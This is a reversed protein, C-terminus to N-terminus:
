NGLWGGGDGSGGKPGTLWHTLQNFARKARAKRAKEEPNEKPVDFPQDPLVADRPKHWFERAPLASEAPLDPPTSAESQAEKPSQVTEPYLKPRVEKLYYLRLAEMRNQISVGGPLENWQQEIELGVPEGQGIKEFAQRLLEAKRHEPADKAALAADLATLFPDDNAM